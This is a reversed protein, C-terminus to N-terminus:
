VKSLKLKNIIQHVISINQSSFKRAFLGPSSILFDVDDIQWDHIMNDQWKIMRKSSNRSDLLDYIHNKYPSNWCVTQLFIEDACFTRDYLRQIHSEQSLLYHVFGHTVSVWNTGKKFEIDINRKIGLIEQFRLVGARIIRKCRQGISDGGRFDKSFLHYRRVKRDIEKSTNGQTFGIFEKGHHKTFFDHIYNQSKIPIDVGSILHYYNYNANAINYASGFLLLEVEIQSVHGWRVDLRDKLIILNANSVELQPLSEVKKDFHIYIDNRHDDLANVLLKLIEFEHHAIILYAHRM